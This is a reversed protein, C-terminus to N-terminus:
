SIGRDRERQENYVEIEKILKCIEARETPHMGTSMLLGRTWDLWKFMKENHEELKDIYKLPPALGKKRAEDYKSM